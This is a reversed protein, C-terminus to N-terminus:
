IITCYVWKFYAMGERKPREGRRCAAARTATLKTKIEAFNEKLDRNAPRTKKKNEAEAKQTPSM